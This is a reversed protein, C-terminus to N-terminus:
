WSSWSALIIEQNTIVSIGIEISVILNVVLNTVDIAQIPVPM